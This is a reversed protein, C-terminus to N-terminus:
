DVLVGLSAIICLTMNDSFSGRTSDSKSLNIRKIIKKIREYNYIDFVESTQDSLYEFIKKNNLIARGEPAQYAIKPSNIIRDPILDSYSSRLIKKFNNGKLKYSRPLDFCYKIFELDLFPYRSEVSNAMSVRDGQSSLLYGSLLNQVEFLQIMDINDLNYEECQSKYEDILDNIIQEAMYESDKMLQISRLNNSLRSKLPNLLGYIGDRMFTDIALKRYRPNNYQPLYSYLNDFLKFGWRSDPHSKIFDIVQQERFIDYGFLIEDAGEGTMVVKHGAENVKKSLLYMPIPATRFFPQQIYKSVEIFNNSIEKDNIKYEFHNLSLSDVLLKQRESEDYELDDFSISFTQLNKKTKNLEYALVSSDIGGSLYSTIDVESMSQRKVANQMEFRFNEEDNKKLKAIGNKNSNSIKEAWNWYCYDTDLKIHNKKYSFKIIHGMKVQDVNDWITRDRSTSWTMHLRAIQSVDISKKIGFEKFSSLDSTFIIREKNKEFSFFLPRIGIPDRILTLSEDITDIIAISFQGNLNKIFKLGFKKYLETLITVEDRTYPYSLFEKELDKHNFIEGNFCLLSDGKHGNKSKFIKPQNGKSLYNIALRNFGIIGYNNSKIQRSDPGRYNFKKLCNNIKNLNNKLHNNKEFVGIFGCM